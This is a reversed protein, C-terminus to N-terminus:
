FIWDWLLEIAIKGGVWDDTLPYTSHLISSSLLASVQRYFMIRFGRCPRGLTLAGADVPEASVPYDASLLVPDQRIALVLLVYGSIFIVTIFMVVSVSCFKRQEKIWSHLTWLNEAITGLTCKNLIAFPSTIIKSIDRYFVSLAMYTVNRHHFRIAM